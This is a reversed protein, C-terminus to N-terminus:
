RPPEQHRGYTEDVARHLQDATAAEPRAGSVLADRIQTLLVIDEAALLGLSPVLFGRASAVQLFIM